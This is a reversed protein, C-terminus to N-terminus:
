VKVGRPLLGTWPLIVTQRGVAAALELALTLDYMPVGPCFGIGTGLYSWVLAGRALLWRWRWPLIMGQFRLAAALELM